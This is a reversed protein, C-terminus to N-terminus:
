TTTLFHLKRCNRKKQNHNHSSIHALIAKITTLTELTFFFQDAAAGKQRRGHWGFSARPSPYQWTAWVEFRFREATVGKRHRAAMGGPPLVLAPISGPQGLRLMITQTSPLTALVTLFQETGQSLTPIKDTLGATIGLFRILGSTKSFITFRDQHGIVDHSLKNFCNGAVINIATPRFVGLVGLLNPSLFM